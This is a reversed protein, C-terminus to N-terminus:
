TRGCAMGNCKQRIAGRHRDPAAVGHDDGADHIGAPGHAADDSYRDHGIQRPVIVPVRCKEDACRERHHARAGPERDIQAGRAGIGVISAFQIRRRRWDSGNSSHCAGTARREASNANFQRQKDSSTIVIPAELQASPAARVAEIEAGREQARPILDIGNTGTLNQNLCKAM